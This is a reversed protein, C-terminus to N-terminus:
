ESEKNEKAPRALGNFIIIEYINDFHTKFLDDIDEETKFRELVLDLFFEFILSTIALNVTIIIFSILLIEM